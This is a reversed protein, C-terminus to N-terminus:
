GGLQRRTESGDSGYGSPAALPGRLSLAAFPGLWFLRVVQAQLLLSRPPHPPGNCPGASYSQLDHRGESAQEFSGNAKLAGGGPEAPDDVNDCLSLSLSTCLVCFLLNYNISELETLLRLSTQCWLSISLYEPTLNPRYTISMLSPDLYYNSPSYKGEM